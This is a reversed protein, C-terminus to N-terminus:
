GRPEALALLNGTLLPVPLNRLPAPLHATVGALLRAGPGDAYVRFHEAVYALSLAKWANGVHRLRFGARELLTRLSTRSLYHLHEAKYHSWRGRMLRASWSELDPTCIMLIGTPALLRRAHALAAALDPLHELVDNLVLADLSGPAATASEFPLAAVVGDGLARNARAVMPECLEVGAVQWGRARAEVLLEGSACGVELLRGRSGGRAAELRGLLWGATARKQREVEGSSNEGWFRFYAPTRYRAYVDAAGDAGPADLHAFRCRRCERVTLGGRVARAALPGGCLECATM